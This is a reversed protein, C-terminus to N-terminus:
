EVGQGPEHAASVSGAALLRAIEESSFGSDRLIALTDAGRESPPRRLESPTRGFRPAAAPQTIGDFDVFTRREKNHSHESAEGFSLVPSLCAKTGELLTCWEDRTRTRVITEVEESCAPWEEPKMWRGIDEAPLGLGEILAVQFPLELAGVAVYKSDATEYTRHFPAGGDFVNRGRPLSWLGAARLGHFVTTLSAVGDVMSADVIQGRGSKKSELLAALLGVVLYLAGGAFDGLLNLPLAPPRDAPGITHLAGALAIYNPDHGVSKALPGDQGWGTMRGYVLRRNRALCEEPGLGLREMVGPRFGEFLADAGEVLRLLIGAGDEHKLDVAMSRRGRNMLNFREPLEVGTRPADIRDIRVVDAGMDSLLMGAFQTPGIGAIEILRFGALPGM